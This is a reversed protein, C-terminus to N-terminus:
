LNTSEDEIEIPEIFNSCSPCESKEMGKPHVCVWKFTCIPCQYYHHEWIPLVDQQLIDLQEQEKLFDDTLKSM